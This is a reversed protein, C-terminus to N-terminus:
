TQCIWGGGLVQESDLAYFVCAQGPATTEIGCAFRVLAGDGNAILHAEAPEQNSRLKVRVVAGDQKAFADRGLWNVDRLRLERTKLTDRAGVTVRRAPADLDVVFLPEGTAIGLGRRQGITYHMVGRHRGLIRGDTHVIDGPEGARPHLSEIVDAYHGRPVFCIDQSDPKDAVPLRLEKARERTQMKTLSGLPFRLRALQDPRTSFLFYSQDRDLDKARHLEDGIRQVYHGTALHSAGLEEAISLLHTFKIRENCRICPIPTEGRRYSDAFEDIVETRFREEFDLVYHPISLSAAVRRADHVDQGACCAGKRATRKGHDYLQLTIGITEHGEHSLMAAALSSDVGGSMAVVIREKEM